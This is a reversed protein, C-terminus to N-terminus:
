KLVKKWGAQPEFQHREMSKLEQITLSQGNLNVMMQDLDSELLPYKELHAAERVLPIKEPDFGMLVANVHDAAALDDGFSLIGSHVATSYAPGEGEGAIIGDTLVIHKRCPSQQLIGKDNAYRAIRALDLVMRWATNNGWWAGDVVPSWYRISRRYVKYAVRLLSGASTEPNTQQVREHFASALKMLGTKDSPYEDGGIEPSGYRHHPLSDKHGVTGVMGKLACSIGVKEHTKLKPASFIVDAELINRNIVYEHHGHSHFVQTRRPDYNMVRYRNSQERDLDDFLSDQNLTVHVGATEDRKEVGKVYGLKNADTVYLRLDRAEVPAGISQYFKLVSDAQTDRLVAQWHCFQTPANGFKVRGAQGNAILIYDILARIVSGHTCRSRYNELLEDDHRETAFNCLLFVRSGPQIFRGLPNWGTTGLNEGDLGAQIFCDRVAQYVPNKQASVAEYRYEPYREDPSFYDRDDPYKISPDIIISIM